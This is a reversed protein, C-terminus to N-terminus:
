FQSFPPAHASRPTQQLQSRCSRSADAAQRPCPATTCAFPWALSSRRRLKAKTALRISLLKTHHSFGRAFLSEIRAPAATGSCLRSIIEARADAARRAASTAPTYGHPENPEENARARHASAFNNSQLTM